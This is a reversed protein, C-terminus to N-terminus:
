ALDLQTKFVELFQSGVTEGAASTGTNLYDSLSKKKGKHM